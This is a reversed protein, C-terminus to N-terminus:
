AAGPEALAFSTVCALWSRGRNANAPRFEPAVVGRTHKGPVESPERARCRARTHYVGSQTLRNRYGRKEERKKRGGM